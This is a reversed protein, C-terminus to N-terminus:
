FCGGPLICSMLIFHRLAFRWMSLLQLAFAATCLVVDVHAPRGVEAKGEAKGEKDLQGGWTPPMNLETAIQELSAGKAVRAALVRRADASFDAGQPMGAQEWLLYAQARTHMRM